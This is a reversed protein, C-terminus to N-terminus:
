RTGAGAIGQDSMEVLPVARDIPVVDEIGVVGHVLRRAVQLLWGHSSSRDGPCVCVSPFPDAAAVGLEKRIRSAGGM